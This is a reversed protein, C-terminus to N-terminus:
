FEDLRRRAQWTVINRDGKIEALVRHGGVFLPEAEAYRGQAALCAGYVSETDAINWDGAPKPRRLLELAEELLERDRELHGLALAVSGLDKKTLAIHLHDEGLRERRLAFVRQFIEDAEAHRGRAHQVRGLSAPEEEM